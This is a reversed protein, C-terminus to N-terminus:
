AALAAIADTEIEEIQKEQGSLQSCLAAAKSRQRFLIVILPRNFHSRDRFQQRAREVEGILVRARLHM